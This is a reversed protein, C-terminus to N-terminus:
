TGTQIPSLHTCLGYKFMHVYANVNELIDTYIRNEEIDVRKPKRITPIQLTLINQIHIIGQYVKGKDKRSATGRMVVM